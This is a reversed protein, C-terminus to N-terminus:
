DANLLQTTHLYYRKCRTPWSRELRAFGMLCRFISIFALELVTTALYQQLTSGISKYRTNAHDGSFNYKKVNKKLLLIQYFLFKQPSEYNLFLLIMKSLKSLSKRIQRFFCFFVRPLFNRIILLKLQENRVQLYALWNALYENVEMSGRSIPSENSRSEGGGEAM